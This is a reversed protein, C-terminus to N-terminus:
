AKLESIEKKVIKVREFVINYKKASTSDSAKTVAFHKGLNIDTM